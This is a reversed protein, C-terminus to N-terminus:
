ELELANFDLFDLLEQYYAVQDCSYLVRSPDFELTGIKIVKTYSDLEENFLSRAEEYTITKM